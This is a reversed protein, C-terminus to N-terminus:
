FLSSLPGYFNFNISASGCQRQLTVLPATVTRPLKLAGPAEPTRTIDRGPRAPRRVEEIRRSIAPVLQPFDDGAKAGGGDRKAASHEFGIGARIRAVVAVVLIIAAAACPM